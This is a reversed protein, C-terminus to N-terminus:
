GIGVLLAILLWFGRDLGANGTLRDFILKTVLGPLLPFAHVGVWLGANLLYHARDLWVLRWSIQWTNLKAKEQKLGM